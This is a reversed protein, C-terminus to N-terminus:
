PKLHLLKLIRDFFGRPRSDRVRRNHIALLLARTARYDRGIIVPEPTRTKM